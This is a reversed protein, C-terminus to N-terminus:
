TKFKRLKTQMLKEHKNDQCHVVFLLGIVITEEHSFNSSCDHELQYSVQVVSFIKEDSAHKKATQYILADPISEINRNSVTVMPSSCQFNTYGRNSFM